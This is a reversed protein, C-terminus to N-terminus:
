TDTCGGITARSETDQPKVPVIADCVKKHKQVEHCLMNCLLHLSIIQLFNVEEKVMLYPTINITKREKKREKKGSM